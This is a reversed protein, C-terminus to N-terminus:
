RLAGKGQRMDIATVNWGSRSLVSALVSGLVGCGVVIANRNKFGPM